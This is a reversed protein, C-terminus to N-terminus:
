LLPSTPRRGRFSARAWTHRFVQSIPSGDAMSCVKAFLLRYMHLGRSPLSPYFKHSQLARMRNVYPSPPPHFQPIIILGLFPSFVWRNVFAGSGSICAGRGLPLRQLSVARLLCNGAGAIRLIRFRIYLGLAHSLHSYVPYARNRSSSLVM